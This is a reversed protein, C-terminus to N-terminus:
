EYMLWIDDAATVPNLDFIMLRGTSSDIFPAAILIEDAGDGDIDGTAIKDGLQFYDMGGNFIYDADDNQVQFHTALTASGKICFTRGEGNYGVREGDRASFMFDGTGDGDFDCGELTWGINNAVNYGEVWFDASAFTLNITSPLSTGGYFGYV